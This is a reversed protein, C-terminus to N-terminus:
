VSSLILLKGQSKCMRLIESALQVKSKDFVDYNKSRSAITQLSYFHAPKNLKLPLPAGDINIVSEVRDPYKCATAMALKGGMSHGLLSAKPIRFKDMMRIIDDAMVEYSHTKHHDSDGHNRM